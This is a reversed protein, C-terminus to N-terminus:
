QVEEPTFAFISREQDFPEVVLRMPLDVSLQDLSARVIRTEVIMEGPLEVYGVIYPEFPEPGEYPSKPRFDQTTWSWLTGRPSLEVMELGTEAAGEPVPFTISGDDRRAGLLRPGEATDHWLNPAIPRLNM